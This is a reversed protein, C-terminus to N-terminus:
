ECKWEIKICSRQHREYLVSVSHSCVAFCQSLGQKLEENNPDIKLGEEYTELCKPYDKLMFYAHGKRIYAKVPHQQHLICCV